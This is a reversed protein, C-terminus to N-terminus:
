SPSWECVAADVDYRTGANSWLARYDSSEALLDQHSGGGFVHGDSVLL